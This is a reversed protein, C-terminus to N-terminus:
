VHPTGERTPPHDARAAEFQALWHTACLVMWLFNYTRHPLDTTLARRAMGLLTARELWPALPGPSALADDLARRVPGARFAAAIPPAFGSKPRYVMEPPVAQALLRKLVAKSERQQPWHVAARLGLRVIAPDLFPYVIDTSSGLFLPADKQATFDCVIHRLDLARSPMEAGPLTAIARIDRVIAAQLARVEVASARYAIGRLPHEAIMSALLYPMQTSIRAAGLRRARANDVGWGGSARYAWGAARRAAPPWAYLRSWRALKTFAGFVGDAGSGDWVVGPAGDTPIDSCILRTPVMSYDGLPQPYDRAFAAIPAEWDAFDNTRSLLPLELLAAMRAAIEAEPDGPGRSYNVLRTSEWGLARARAALLGSDVGGSFLIVPARDPCDRVLVRDIEAAVRAEQAPADLREDEPLPDGWPDFATFALNLTAFDLTACTGPPLRRVDRWLALPPVLAGFELLCLVAQPDLSMGPAYLLRPDTAICIGSARRSVFVQTTSCYPVTITLKGAIADLALRPDEDDRPDRLPQLDRSRGLSLELCPAGAHAGPPAAPGAPAPEVLVRVRRAAIIRNCWAHRPLPAGCAHPAPVPAEPPSVSLWVQRM